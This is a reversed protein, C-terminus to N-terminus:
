DYCCALVQESTLNQNPLLEKTRGRSIIQINDSVELIEKIDSSVFVVASGSDAKERLLRHIESRTKVDVAQTPEDCLLVKPETMLTKAFVVKQQNGGSLEIARQDTSALKISLKDIMASVAQKERDAQMVGHRAFDDIANLIMNDRISMNGIMAKGRRDESILTMGARISRAPTRHDFAQGCLTVRGEKSPRYGFICEMAETRGSGGLGFVGLVEGAHAKFSVDRVIGDRSQLHEVELLAEGMGAGRSVAEGTWKDTMKGILEDKNTAETRLTEVMAGNKFITIRDTLRFIEDMRHTVYLIATGKAKLRAIVAFLLESEKDTLSATPEDLILLRCDNMMSRVIELCTKQPPSMEEATQEPDIDINLERAVQMVRERMAAWDIRGGRTPYEMGLYANEVASFSPVLIRDQHIVNIGLRRSEVPNRLEAKQGNWYVAGEDLTYVGTLIKILTSKGAGNEGVLGHIEGAELEFNIDKLAYFGSFQKSVHETRLLM